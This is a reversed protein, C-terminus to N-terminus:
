KAKVMIESGERRVTQVKFGDDKILRRITMTLADLEPVPANIKGSANVGFSPFERYDGVQSHIIDSIHQASSEAVVLDGDKFALDGDETRAYDFRKM